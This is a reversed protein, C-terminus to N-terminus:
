IHQVRFTTLLLLTEDCHRPRVPLKSVPKEPFKEFEVDGIQQVLQPFQKQFLEKAEQPTKVSEVVSNGPKTLLLGMLLGERTPLAQLMLGAKKDAAEASFNMDQRWDDAPKFTVTKYVRPNTDEYVTRRCHFTAPCIVGDGDATETQAWRTSM